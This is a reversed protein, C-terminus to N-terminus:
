PCGGCRACIFWGTEDHPSRRRDRQQAMDASLAHVGYRAQVGERRPQSKGQWYSLNETDASASYREGVDVPVRAAGLDAVADARAVAALAKGGLSQSGEGPPCQGCAAQLAHPQVDVGVIERGQPDRVLCAERAFGGQAAGAQLFVAQVIDGDEGEQVVLDSLGPRSRASGPSPAQSDDPV